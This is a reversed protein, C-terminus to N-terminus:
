KDKQFGALRRLSAESRSEEIYLLKKKSENVLYNFALNGGKKDDTFISDVYDFASIRGLLVLPINNIKSIEVAKESFENFSIIIDANRFICKKIILDDVKLFPDTIM